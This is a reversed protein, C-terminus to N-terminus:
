RASGSLSASLVRVWWPAYTVLAGAGKHLAKAKERAPKPVHGDEGVTELEALVRYADNRLAIREAGPLTQITDVPGLRAAISGAADAGLVKRDDGYREILDKAEPMRRSLAQLDQRSLDVNMGFTAPLLGIITLMILGISKQGDNTGHAFSVGTCTAILLGRMWWIPPQGEKPQEFLNRDHLLRKGLQFM